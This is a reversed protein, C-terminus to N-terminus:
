EDGYENENHEDCMRNFVGLLISEALHDATRMEVHVIVVGFFVFVIFIEFQLEVKELAAKWGLENDEGELSHVTELVGVNKANM